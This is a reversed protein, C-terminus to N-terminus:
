PTSKYSEAEVYIWAYTLTLSAIGIYTLKKKDVLIRNAFMMMGPINLVSTM